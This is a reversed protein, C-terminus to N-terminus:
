GRRRRTITSQSLVVAMGCLMGGIATPEPVSAATSVAATTGLNQQWALFDAGDSDGDGDADAGPGSGFNSTWEFIDDVDVDGDGDFDGPVAEGAWWALGFDTDTGDVQHVM